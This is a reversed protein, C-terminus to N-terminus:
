KEEGWRVAAEVGREWEQAELHTLYAKINIIKNATLIAKAMLGVVAEQAPATKSPALPAASARHMKEVIDRPTTKDVGYAVEIELQRAREEMIQIAADVPNDPLTTGYSHHYIYKQLRMLDNFAGEQAPAPRSLAALRKLAGTLCPSSCSDDRGRYKCPWLDPAICLYKTIGGVSDNVGEVQQKREEEAAAVLRMFRSSSARCDDEFYERVAEVLRDIANM